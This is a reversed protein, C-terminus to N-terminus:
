EYSLWTSRRNDVPKWPDSLYNFVLLGEWSDLTSRDGSANWVIHGAVEHGSDNSSEACRDQGRRHIHHFGSKNVRWWSLVCTHGVARHHHEGPFPRWSKEFPLIHEETDIIHHEPIRHAEPPRRMQVISLQGSKSHATYQTDVKRQWLDRWYVLEVTDSFKFSHYYFRRLSSWRSM